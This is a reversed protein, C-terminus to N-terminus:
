AVLSRPAAALVADLRDLCALAEAFQQASMHRDVMLINLAPDDPFQKKFRSIAEAYQEESSRSSARLNILLLSRETQISEPLQAYITLVSPSDGREYAETLKLM